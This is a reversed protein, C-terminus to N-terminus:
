GFDYSELEGAEREAEAIMGQKVFEYPIDPNDEMIKGIKAWHEIQKPPTRSLAKAMITAKDILDQDLRISITAM